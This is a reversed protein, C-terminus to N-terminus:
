FDVHFSLSSLVPLSGTNIQELGLWQIFFSFESLPLLKGLAM